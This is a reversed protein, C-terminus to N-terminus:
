TLQGNSIFSADMYTQLSNRRAESDSMVYFGKHHGVVSNLFEQASEISTFDVYEFVLSGYKDYIRYM